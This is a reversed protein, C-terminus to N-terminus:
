AVAFCITELLVREHIAFREPTSVQQYAAFAQAMLETWRPALDAPIGIAAPDPLNSADMTIYRTSSEQGDAM